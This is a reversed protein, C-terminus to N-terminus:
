IDLGAPLGSGTRTENVINLAAGTACLHVFKTRDSSGSLGLVPLIRSTHWKVARVSMHLAAAIEKQTYGEGTLRIIERDQRDGLM